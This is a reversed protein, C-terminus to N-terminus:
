EAEIATVPDNRRRNGEWWLTIFDATFFRWPQGDLTMTFYPYDGDEERRSFPLIAINTGARVVINGLFTPHFADELKAVGFSYPVSWRYTPESARQRELTNWTNADIPAGSSTVWDQRSIAEKAEVTLSWESALGFTLLRPSTEPAHRAHEYAQTVMTIAEAPSGDLLVRVLAYSEPAQKALASGLHDFFADGFAEKAHVYLTEATIHGMVSQSHALAEEIAAHAGAAAPDQALDQPQASLYWALLPSSGDSSLLM